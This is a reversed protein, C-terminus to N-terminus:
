KIRTSGLISISEIYIKNKTKEQTNKLHETGGLINTNSTIVEINSPLLLETEGFVSLVKITANNEIKANRLDLGLYGFIVKTSCGNFNTTVSEDTSGLFAYYFPVIKTNSDKREPVKITAKVINIGIFIIGLCVLITFCKNFPIVKNCTLILLIGLILMYLSVGKNRHFLVSGLAPIIIMLAWWGNFLINYKPIFITFILAIFAYTSFATAAVINYIKEIKEKM